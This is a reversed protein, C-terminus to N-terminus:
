IGKSFVRKIPTSAASRSINISTLGSCDEFAYHGISKVSNPINISTLRRCGYFTSGEIKTVGNPINISTLETCGYFAGGGVSTVSYTNGGNAVTAPITIAGTPENNYYPYGSNEPVVAVERKAADTIKYFLQGYTFDYQKAVLTGSALVLGLVILAVRKMTNKYM